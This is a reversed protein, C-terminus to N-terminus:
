QTLLHQARTAYIRLGQLLHRVLGILFRASM